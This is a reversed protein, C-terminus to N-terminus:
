EAALKHEGRLTELEADLADIQMEKVQLSETLKVLQQQLRGRQDEFRRKEGMKRAILVAIDVKRKNVEVGCTSFFAAMRKRRPTEVSSDMETKVSSFRFEM